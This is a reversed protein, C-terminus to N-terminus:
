KKTHYMGAQDGRYRSRHDYNLQQRSRRRLQHHRHRWQAEITINEVFITGPRTLPIAQARDQWTALFTASVVTTFFLIQKATM